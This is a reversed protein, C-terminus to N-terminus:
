SEEGLLIKAVRYFTSYNAVLRQGGCQKGGCFAHVLSNTGYRFLLEPRLTEIQDTM